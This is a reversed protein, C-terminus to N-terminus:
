VRGRATERSKALQRLTTQVERTARNLAARAERAALLLEDALANLVAEDESRGPSAQYAEVARRMVEGASLGLSRARALIASKQEPTVLITMRETKM